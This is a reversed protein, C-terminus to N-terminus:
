SSTLSIVAIEPPMFIRLAMGMTGLGTTVYLYHDGNKYLGKWYKHLLSAPSIYGGPAPLGVQLGHTHGSLTLDPINKQLLAQDWGSSAHLLLISFLSDPIQGLVHDFDGYSINFHHGHTSIGAVAVQASDHIIYVATDRLLTYGSSRIRRNLMNNNEQSYRRNFRPHYTGDDHNGDVAFAGDTAHARALITDCGAFEKWGYTIFDGANILIDPEEDNIMNMIRVLRDYHGYWSSLHLDSILVIKMGRLRPDLGKVSIEKHIVNVRFRQRFYSDSFLAVLACFVIIGALGRRGPKYKRSKNLLWTSLRIILYASAATVLLAGLAGFVILRYANAPDAFEGKYFLTRVALYLLAVSLLSKLIYVVAQLAKRRHKLDSILAFWLWIEAVLVTFLLIIM